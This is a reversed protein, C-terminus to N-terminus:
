NVSLDVSETAAIAPLGCEGSGNYSIEELCLGEAPMVHSAAGRDGSALLQGVVDASANGRGVDYLVGAIRRIQQHLYANATIKFEINDGDRTASVSKVNRLTPADQPTSPGAFAAFDHLGVFYQSAANMVDADLSARVHTVVHRDLAPASRADNFTYVYTRSSADGRPDFGEPGDQVFQACRIRVDKTVYHNLAKRIQDPTMDTVEDFCGVQGRAHVGADTRSAFHMRINKKFINRLADEIEGQVTRANTQIQSGHFETGDYEVLLGIRM